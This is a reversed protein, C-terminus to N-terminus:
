KKKAAELEQSFKPSCAGEGAFQQDKIRLRKRDTFIMEVLAM